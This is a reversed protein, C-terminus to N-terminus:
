QKLPLRSPTRNSTAPYAQPESGHECNGGRGLLRDCERMVLVHFESHFTDVAVAASVNPVGRGKRRNFLAHKAM